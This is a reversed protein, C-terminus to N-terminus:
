ATVHVGTKNPGNCIKPHRNIVAGLTVMALAYLKVILFDTDRYGGPSPFLINGGQINRM